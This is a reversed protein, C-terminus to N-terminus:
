RILHIDTHDVDFWVETGGVASFSFTDVDEPQSLVGQIVFGLRLNEDSNSADEALQGLVQASQTTGNVGPAVANAAEKELVIGVNRDNSFQDLRIGRWDGPQPISGIGDNNTDNQPKGDVRLGAGVTDDRLSTMVVPFGPQGIVHVTGGVRDLISSRSGTATISTGRSEDFNSGTGISKVVLSETPSSQIRLGGGHQQNGTYIGEYLVHVIDTDDWVSEVTLIDEPLLGNTSDLIAANADNTRNDGRIKLGNLDNNTFRNGRFLPGRNYDLTTTRDIFMTQRGSDGQLENTM